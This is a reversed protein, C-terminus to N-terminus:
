SARNAPDLTYILALVAATLLTCGTAWALPLPLGLVQPEVSNLLPMGAFLAVVPILGLWKLVLLM